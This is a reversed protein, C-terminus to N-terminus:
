AAIADTDLDGGLRPCGFEGVLWGGFARFM